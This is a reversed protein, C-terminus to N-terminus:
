TIIKGRLTIMTPVTKTLRPVVKIIPTVQLPSTVGLRRIEKTSTCKHPHLRNTHDPAKLGIRPIAQTTLHTPHLLVVPGSITVMSIRTVNAGSTFQEMSPAIMRM